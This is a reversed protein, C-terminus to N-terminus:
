VLRWIWISCTTFIQAQENMIPKGSDVDKLNVVFTNVGLRNPTISLQILVKGDSTKLTTHLFAPPTGKVTSEGTPKPGVSTTGCAVLMVSVMGLLWIMQAGKAFFRNGKTMPKRGMEKM